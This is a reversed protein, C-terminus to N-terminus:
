RLVPWQQSRGSTAMAAVDRRFWAVTDALGEDLSLRPRYGLKRLRGTDAVWRQADGPRVDGSYVFRPTTNMKECIVRALNGITTPEGASVNYVEGRLPARDAVLLFAEVVNAVHSLDRIQTGDGHIFLEEPNEHVKRILDYVVQKRSRPGYVPFLRLSAARMAFLRAYVDLYREAALKTVGYPAIPVTPQDELLSGGAGEGYVAASSAFIVRARPASERVAQLLNFTPILNRELDQRPNQVSAPVDAHGALHFITDFDHEALLQRVDDGLLDLRHINVQDPVERLNQTTGYGL